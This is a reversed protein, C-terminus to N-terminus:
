VENKEDFVLVDESSDTGIKHRYVQFARLNKDKRIYFVHQNDNAWVAKGTTNPIQDPLIEGTILNKIQINYIRRGVHDSSFTALENNLSVAVSGVEFFQKGEALINVDLIIEEPNELTLHKRSFIPYENNNQYKVFYWYENFFYPLSEDDKKYRAKMEEFLENQLDQTDKMVFDCYANEEELYKLVEPNERENMWFYSDVRRDGHIELIKDTKKAKPPQM